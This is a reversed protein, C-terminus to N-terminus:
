GLINMILDDLAVQTMELDARLQINDAKASALETELQEIYPNKAIAVLQKTVLDVKYDKYISQFNQPIGSELVIFDLIHTYDDQFEGFYSMDSRGEVFTKILGTTKSYYITVINM